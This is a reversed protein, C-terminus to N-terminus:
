SNFGNSKDLIQQLFIIYSVAKVLKHYQSSFKFTKTNKLKSNKSFKM